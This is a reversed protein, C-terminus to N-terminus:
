FFNFSHGTPWRGRRPDAPERPLSAHHRDRNVLDMSPQDVHPTPPTPPAPTHTPSTPTTQGIITPAAYDAPNFVDGGSVMPTPPTPTEPSTIKRIANTLNDHVVQDPTRVVPKSLPPLLKAVN